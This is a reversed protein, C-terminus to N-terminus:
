RVGVCDDVTVHRQSTEVAAMLDVVGDPTHGLGLAHGIEHALLARMGDPTSQRRYVIGDANEYGGHEGTDGERVSLGVPGVSVDAGCVSVWEAVALSVAEQVEADGEVTLVVSSRGCGVLVLLVLWRM